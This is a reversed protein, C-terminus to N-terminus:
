QRGSFAGPRASPRPQGRDWGVLRRPRLPGSEAGGQARSEYRALWAPLPLGGLEARLESLVALRQRDTLGPAGSPTSEAPETIDDHFSM